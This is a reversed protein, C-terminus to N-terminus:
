LITYVNISKILNWIIFFAVRLLSNSKKNNVLTTFDNKSCLEFYPKQKEFCSLIAKTLLM